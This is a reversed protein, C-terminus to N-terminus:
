HGRGSMAPRMPRLRCMFRRRSRTQVSSIKQHLRWIPWAYCGSLRLGPQRRYLTGDADKVLRAMTLVVAPDTTIRREPPHASLLNPKLLVRDGPRVFSSIGGLLDLADGIAVELDKFEYTNCRILSVISRNAM